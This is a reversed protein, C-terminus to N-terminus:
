GRRNWARSPDERSGLDGRSQGWTWQIRKFNRAPSLSTQRAPGRLDPRPSGASDPLDQLRGSGALCIRGNDPLDQLDQLSERPSPHTVSSSPPPTPPPLLGAVRFSPLAPSVQVPTQTKCLQDICLRHLAPGTPHVDTSWLLL